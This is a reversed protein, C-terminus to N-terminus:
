MYKKILSKLVLEVVGRCSVGPLDTLYPWVCMRASEFVCSNQKNTQKQKYKIKVMSFVKIKTKIELENWASFQNTTTRIKYQHNRFPYKFKHLAIM